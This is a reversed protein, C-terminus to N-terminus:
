EAKAAWRSLYVLCLAAISTIIVASILLQLISDQGVGIWPVLFKIVREIPERWALAILFAFAATIGAVVQKRYEARIEKKAKKHKEILEKNKQEFAKRKNEIKKELKAKKQLIKKKNELIKKASEEIAAKAAKTNLKDNTNSTNDSNIPNSTNSNGSSYKEKSDM